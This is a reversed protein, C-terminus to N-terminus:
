SPPCIGDPCTRCTVTAFTDRPPPSADTGRDIEMRVNSKCAADSRVRWCPFGNSQDCAPVPTDTYQTGNPVREVVRCEPQLGAAVGTDLLPEDICGLTAKERLKAGIQKLGPSLDDNCLSYALGDEGFADVFAKMRLGGYSKGLKASECIPLYDWKGKNAATATPDTGIRYKANQGSEIPWGFLGGVVIQESPRPKTGRVADVIKSVRTLSTDKDDPQCDSFNAEFARTTPYELAKGNCVHGRTACRLSVTEDSIDQAFMDSDWDASCDDEDSLLVIGLYADDRLFSGDSLARQLAVAAAKIQHEYECGSTGLQSACAFASALSGSFNSGSESQELWLAGDEAGCGSKMQFMGLDGGSTPRKCVSAYSGAGLDSSVIGVHLDPQGGPLNSLEDLLAPFAAALASQKAAMGPSNDVLFVIDYLPRFAELFTFQTQEVTTDSSNATSCVPASSQTATCALPLDPGNAPLFDKCVCMKKCCLPGVEFPVACKFGKMCRGDYPGNYPARLEGECDADTQCEASCIARTDVSKDESQIAPKLCMGSPCESANGNYAAQSPGANVHVDCRQGVAKASPVPSSSCGAVFGFLCGLVVSVRPSRM